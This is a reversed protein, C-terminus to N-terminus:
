HELIKYGTNKNPQWSFLIDSIFIKLSEPKIGSRIEALRMRNRMDYIVFRQSSLVSSILGISLFILAALSSFLFLIGTGIKFKLLVPPLFFLFYIIRAASIFSILFCMISLAMFFTMPAYHLYSIFIVKLQKFVFDLNSRALRSKRTQPNVGIQLTRVLLDNRGAQILTELTYSFKNMSFLRIAVDRTIVRFGSTVDPVNLGSIASVFKSGIIQLCKKFFSFEKHNKIDRCGIVIDAKESILTKVMEPIDQARYQNDGDLNVILDAGFFLCADLGNIYSKSLGLNKNHKIIYDVGLRCATEFTKDTSGDDIILTHIQEIGEITRPLDKIVYPLTKEENYCPIQIFLKM